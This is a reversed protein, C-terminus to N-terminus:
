GALPAPLDELTPAARTVLRPRSRARGSRGTGRHALVNASLVADMVSAAMPRGLQYGQGLVSGFSAILTAQEATEIGEVVVQLSLIEAMRVITELFSAATPDLAITDVFLKDVKITNVPLRRLLALSSHGTGFDDVALSVGLARLAHLRQIATEVDVMVAGETIELVLHAPELGATELAAAVDSVIRSDQLQRPSVNVSVTLDKLSPDLRKWRRAQTCAEQTIWRGLAAIQGTEEALAIFQLPSMVGRRPHHWRILAEVGLIRLDSLDIIPQYALEMEGRAVAGRLDAELDMRAVAAAHMSPEFVVFGEGRGLKARYMATDADRLMGGADARGGRDLAIGISTTALVERTDLIFAPEMASLVRRAIQVAGARDCHALIAFEDGGLRSATDEERLCRRLREGVTVLVQDGATHGLSDNITKFRDLDLFLVAVHGRRRRARTLAQALREMFLGRNPLGTLEDHFALERIHEVRKADTIALSAHEALASLMEQELAGFGLDGRATAVVISGTVRDGDRVPAAMARALKMEVLQSMAVPAQSYDEVMVLGDETIARGHAGEGVASRKMAEAVAATLGQQAVMVVEGPAQPDVLRVAAVEADLLDVAGQTITNLVDALPLRRTIARQIVSLRELLEQRKQLNARLTREASLTRFLRLTMTLSRAAARLLGVEERSFADTGARAVVLDVASDLELRTSALRCLGLGGIDLLESTESMAAALATPPVEGRPFGISALAVSGELVIGIEAELAETAWDLARRVASAEDPAATIAAVFEALRPTSWRDTGKM